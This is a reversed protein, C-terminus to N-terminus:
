PNGALLITGEHAQKLLTQYEKVLARLGTEDKGQEARAILRRLERLRHEVKKKRIRAICDRLAQGKNSSSWDISMVKVLRERDEEREVRNLIRAGSWERAKGQPQQLLEFLRQTWSEEFDSATLERGAEERLAPDEAMLAVLLVEDSAGTPSAPPPSVAAQVGRGKEKRKLKALEERISSENIGLSAALQRLYRDLLIPNEVRLFTELFENTIRVLGLSDWRNFKGLLVELKYEFFDRAEELLKQFAEPGKQAAFDDPDFGQPLAVLKVNMGGQLFIELSRLSAAEGAKDGDYVVVAEEAFRKLLRVHEETLSTGLTAVTARFGRSYLRLFDFYGEVVTIRPRDRDVFKKALDLGFLERRKSFVPNEASNLYKPGEGEEILRGGFAVVKGRLNRIPFLIRSRFADYLNGKASRQVLGAKLVMENSIGRKSLAEFLQGWEASAWGIGFERALAADFGRSEFYARAKQGKQPDLFQAHYFEAAFQFMEYLREAESPGEGKRQVPEPLRVHAREALQRLVEPFSSNELRMLFTFVNGGVGCGFCHFIQKEPHVMFSPTKEQHFPCLAKFNRGSKKLPLHQSIVEVIDSAAQVEDVVRDEYRM